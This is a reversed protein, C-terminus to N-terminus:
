SGYIMLFDKILSLVGRPNKHNLRRYFEFAHNAAHVGSESSPVRAIIDLVVHSIPHLLVAHHIDSVTIERVKGPELVGSSRVTMLDTLEENLMAWLRHHFARTGLNEPIDPIIAMQDGNTLDIGRVDGLGHVTKRHEHFALEKISKRISKLKEYFSERAGNRSTWDELPHKDLKSNRSRRPLGSM